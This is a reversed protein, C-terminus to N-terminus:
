NGVITEYDVITGCGHIAKMNDSPHILLKGTEKLYQRAAVECEDFNEGATKM